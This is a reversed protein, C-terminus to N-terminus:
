RGGGGLSVAESGGYADALVDPPKQHKLNKKEKKQGGKCLPMGQLPM